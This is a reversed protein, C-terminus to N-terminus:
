GPRDATWLDGADVYATRCPPGDAYRVAPPRDRRAPVAVVGSWRTGYRETHVCAAKIEPPLPGEPGHVPEVGDPVVHDGLVAQLHQVLAAEALGEAGAMRGRVHRVKPSETGVPENEVVHLGPPLREVTPAGDGTVDVAFTDDRDGVVLWAPNYDRGRLETAFADVAEAASTHGTLALPLEGRSRKSLDRGGPTPRNTLGVVVGAENVALWTGCAVEDRGGLIRPGADRLVTMPVAAREYLEDRNAAMVLPVDPHVSALVILLCV